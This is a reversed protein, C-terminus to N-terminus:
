PTKEIGGGSRTSMCRKEHINVAHREGLYEVRRGEDAECDGVNVGAEVGRDFKLRTAPRRLRKSRSCAFRNEFADLQM